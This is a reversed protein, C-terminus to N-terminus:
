GEDLNTPFLLARAGAFLEAKRRGRADGVFRAGWALCRAGLECMVEDTTSSAMVTLPSGVARALAFALGGGKEDAADARGAFLLYDEKTASYILQEPDVGNLVVRPHGYARALSQSVAVWNPPVRGRSHGPPPDPSATADIHLTAVWPAGLEALAD